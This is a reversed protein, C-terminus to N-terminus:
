PRPATAREDGLRRLAYIKLWQPPPTVSAFVELLPGRFEHLRQSLRHPTPAAGVNAFRLRVGRVTAQALDWRALTWTLCAERNAAFALPRTSWGAEVRDTTARDWAETGRLYFSGWSLERPLVAAYWDEDSIIPDAGAAASSLERGLAELLATVLLDWRPPPAEAENIEREFDECLTPTWGELRERRIEDLIVATAAETYAAVRPNAGPLQQWSSPKPTAKAADSAGVSDAGAPGMEVASISRLRDILKYNLGSVTSAIPGFETARRRNILREIDFEVLLRAQPFAAPLEPLRPAIWEVAQAPHFRDYNPDAKAAVTIGLARDVLAKLEDTLGLQQFAGAIVETSVVGRRDIGETYCDRLQQPSLRSVTQRGYAAAEAAASPIVGRELHARTEKVSTVLGRLRETYSQSYKAVASALVNPNLVTTLEASLVRVATEYRDCEDFIARVADAADNADAADSAPASAEATVLQRQAEISRLSNGWESGLQAPGVSGIEDRVRDIRDLMQLILSRWEDLRVRFAAEAEPVAAPVAEPVPVAEPGAGPGAEPVAGGTSNSLM